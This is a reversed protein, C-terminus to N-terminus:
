PDSADVLYIIGDVDTVYNKWTMRVGEHGGMDRMTFRIKGLVLEESYPKQTPDMQRIKGNKFHYLLSTKGANDLGLFVIKAKKNM